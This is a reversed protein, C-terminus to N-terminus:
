QSCFFHLLIYIKIFLSLNCKNLFTKYPACKWKTYLSIIHWWPQEAKWFNWANHWLLRLLIRFCGGPKRYIYLRKITWSKDDFYSSTWCFACKCLWVPSRTNCRTAFTNKDITFFMYVFIIKCNYDWSYYRAFIVHDIHRVFVHKNTQSGWCSWRPCYFTHM